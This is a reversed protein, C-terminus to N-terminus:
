GINREASCTAAGIHPRTGDALSASYALLLSVV